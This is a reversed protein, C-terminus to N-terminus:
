GLGSCLSHLLKFNLRLAIMVFDFRPTILPPPRPKMAPFIESLITFIPM